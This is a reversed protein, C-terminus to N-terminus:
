PVTYDGEGTWLHAVLRYDTGDPAVTYVFDGPHSGQGMPRGTYPNTPWSGVYRRGVAGTQSVDAASPYRGAHDAAYTEVGAQISHIGDEVVALRASQKETLANAPRWASPGGRPAFTFVLAALVLPVVVLLTALRKDM